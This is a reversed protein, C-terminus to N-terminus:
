DSSSVKCCAEVFNSQTQLLTLALDWDKEKCANLLETGDNM